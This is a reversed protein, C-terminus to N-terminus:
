PIHKTVSLLNMAQTLNMCPMISTIYTNEHAGEKVISIERIKKSLVTMNERDMVVDHGVSLMRFVHNRLLVSIKDHVDRTVGQVILEVMLWGETNMYANVVEGVVHGEPPEAHEIYVPIGVMAQITEMTMDSQKLFTGDYDLDPVPVYAIGRVLICPRDEWFMTMNECTKYTFYAFFM